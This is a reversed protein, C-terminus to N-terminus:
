REVPAGDKPATPQLTKNPEPKKFPHNGLLEFEALTAVGQKNDMLDIYGVVESAGNTEAQVIVVPTHGKRDEGLFYAYQPIQLQLPAGSPKGASELYFVAAGREFDQKTAPRGTIFEFNSLAPWRAGSDQSMTVAGVTLSVFVITSQLARM